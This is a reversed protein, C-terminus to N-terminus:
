DGPEFRQRALRVVEISVIRCFPASVNRCKRFHAGAIDIWADINDVVSILILQFEVKDDRRASIWFPYLHSKFAGFPNAYVLVTIENQARARTLKSLTARDRILLNTM